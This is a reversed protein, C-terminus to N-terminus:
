RRRQSPWSSVGSTAAPLDDVIREIESALPKEFRQAHVAEMFNDLLRGSPFPIEIGRRNFKYWIMRM